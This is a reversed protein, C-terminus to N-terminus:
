NEGVVTVTKSGSWDSYITGNESVYSRIRISYSSGATLATITTSGASGSNVVHYGVYGTGLNKYEVQYGDCSKIPDWTVHINRTGSPNTVSNLTPTSPKAAATKVSKQSSWPSYVKEEKGDGNVDDYWFTRIAIYYTTNARCRTMTASGIREDQIDKFGSNGARKWYIQYGDVDSYRKWKINISYSGDSQKDAKLSTIKTGNSHVYVKFKIKSAKAYKNAKAKVTITATGPGVGKVKGNSKVKAVKTNSSKFVLKRGAKTAPDIVIKTSQGAYLEDRRIYGSLPVRTKKIKFNMKVSGSYRNIGTIKMTAIGVKKNKSYTVVYDVNRKLTFLGANTVGYVTVNPKIKYGTYNHRKSYFYQFNNATINSNNVPIFATTSANSVTDTVKILALGPAIGTVAGTNPDVTAISPMESSYKYNGTGGSAALNTTKGVVLTGYNNHVTVPTKGSEFCVTEFKSGVFGGSGIGTIRINVTYYNGNPFVECLSLRYNQDRVLAQGDYTVEFNVIGNTVSNVKVVAYNVDKYQPVDAKAPKKIAFVAALMLILFMCVKLNRRM